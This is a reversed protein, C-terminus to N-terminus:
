KKLLIISAWEDKESTKIHEYFIEKYTKLINDVQDLLIGSLILYGGGKVCVDINEKESLLVHELINAFVLDYNKELSFRDRSVVRTGSIDRDKFNLVLNDVCNDLARPDIDMFDASMGAWKIAAIGLIGSGCGFDLCDKGKLEDMHNIFHNLCLFTTAHEGTGFGQGPSIYVEKLKEEEILHSPIIQYGEELDIPRYHKKWEQNWDEVPKKYKLFLLNKSTFYECASAYKEDINDEWFFISIKQSSESLKEDILKFSEISDIIQFAKDDKEPRYEGEHAGDYVIEQIIEFVLEKSQENNFPIEIEYFYDNLESM